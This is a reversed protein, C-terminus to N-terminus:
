DAIEVTFIMSTKATIRVLTGAPADPGNVTYLADGVKIDGLGQEIASNLHFTKGIMQSERDNLETRKEQPFYKYLLKICLGTTCLSVALIVLQLAVPIEYLHTLFAVLMFSLGAVLLAGNLLGLVLMEAIILACGLGFWIEAATVNSIQEM